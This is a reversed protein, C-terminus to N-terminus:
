NSDFPQIIDSSFIVAIIQVLAHGDLWTLVELGGETVALRHLSLLDHKFLVRREAVGLM